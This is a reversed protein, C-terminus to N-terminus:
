RACGRIRRRGGAAHVAVAVAEEDGLAGDLADGAVDEDRGVGGLLGHVAVAHDDADRADFGVAAGVALDDLDQLRACGVTTPSNWMPRRPMYTTGARRACGATSRCGRPCPIGARRRRVTSRMPTSAASPRSGDFVQVAHDDVDLQELERSAAVGGTPRTM